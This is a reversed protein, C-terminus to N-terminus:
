KYIRVVIDTYGERKCKACKINRGSAKLERVGDAIMRVFDGLNGSQASISLQRDVYRDAERVTLNNKGIYKAAEMQMGTDPMKLLARAQRESLGYKNVAEQIEPALNLLRLKNSITAGTIKLKKALDRRNTGIDLMGKIIKASEFFGTEKSKYKQVAEEMTM